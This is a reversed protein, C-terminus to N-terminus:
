LANMRHLMRLASMRAVFACLLAIILPFTSILLIIGPSPLARFIYPINFYNTFWAFFAIVPFAFGLGMLAGKLAMKFTQEQFQRAFFYDRAGMLRLTNVITQFRDMASKTILVVTTSISMLIFSLVLGIFLQLASSLDHANKQWNQTSEIHIGAIMQRLQDRMKNLDISTNIHFEADLLLPMELTNFDQTSSIWPSLIKHIEAKPVWSMRIFGKQATLISQIKLDVEESIAGNNTPIEITIKQTEQTKWLSLTSHFSVSAALLLVMLFVLLALVWPMHYQHAIKTFPIEEIRNKM